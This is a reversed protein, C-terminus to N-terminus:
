LNRAERMADMVKDFEAVTMQSAIVERGIVAKRFGRRAAIANSGFLSTALAHYAGLEKSTILDTPTRVSVSEIDSFEAASGWGWLNDEFYNRLAQGLDSQVWSQLNPNNNRVTVTITFTHDYKTM